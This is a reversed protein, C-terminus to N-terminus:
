KSAGSQDTWTCQGLPANNAGAWNGTARDITTGSVEIKSEKLSLRATEMRAAMTGTGNTDSIKVPRTEWSGRGLGPVFDLVTLMQGLFTKKQFTYTTKATGDTTACDLTAVCMTCLEGFKTALLLPKAPADQAACVSASILFFGLGILSTKIPMGRGAAGFGLMIMRLLCRRTLGSANLHKRCHPPSALDWMLGVYQAPHCGDKRTSM